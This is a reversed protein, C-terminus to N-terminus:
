AWPLFDRNISVLSDALQDAKTYQGILPHALLADAVRDRGGKVAAELALHEYATVAAILGSFRPEVPKQPIAVAGGSDV